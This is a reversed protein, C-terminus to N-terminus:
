VRGARLRLMKTSQYTQSKVCGSGQKQGEGGTYGKDAADVKLSGNGMGWSWVYADLSDKL